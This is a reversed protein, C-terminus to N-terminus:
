TGRQAQLLIVLRGCIREFIGAICRGAGQAIQIGFHGCFALQISEEIIHTIGVTNLEIIMGIHNLKKTVVMEFHAVTRPIEARDFFHTCLQLLM